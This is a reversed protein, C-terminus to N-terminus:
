RRCTGAIVTSLTPRGVERGLGRLSNPEGLQVHRDEEGERDEGEEGRRERDGVDDTPDDQRAVAVDADHLRDPERRRLDRGDQDGLDEDRDGSPM